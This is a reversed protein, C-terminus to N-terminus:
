SYADIRFERNLELLGQILSLFYPYGSSVMEEEHAVKDKRQRGTPM